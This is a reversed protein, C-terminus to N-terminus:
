DDGFWQTDKGFASGLVEGSILVISLIVLTMQLSQYVYYNQVIVLNNVCCRLIYPNQQM